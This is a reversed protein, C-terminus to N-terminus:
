IVSILHNYLNVLNLTDKEAYNILEQEYISISEKKIKGTILQMLVMSADDGSNVYESNYIDGDPLIKSVSKLSFSGRFGPHYYNERVLKLM